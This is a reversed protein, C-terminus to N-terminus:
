NDADLRFLKSFLNVCALAVEEIYVHVADGGIWGGLWRDLWGGM